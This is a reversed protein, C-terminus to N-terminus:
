SYLSTHFTFSNRSYILRIETTCFAAQRAWGITADPVLSQWSPRAFRSSARSAKNGGAMATPVPHHWLNTPYYTYHHCCTCALICIHRQSNISPLTYSRLLFFHMPSPFLAHYHLHRSDNIGGRDLGEMRPRPWLESAQWPGPFKRLDLLAKIM